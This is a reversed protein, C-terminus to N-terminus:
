KEHRCAALGTNLTIPIDVNRDFLEGDGTHMLIDGGPGTYFAKGLAGTQGTRWLVCGLAIVKEVKMRM